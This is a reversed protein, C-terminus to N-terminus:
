GMATQTKVVGYGVTHWLDGCIVIKRQTDGIMEELISNSIEKCPNYFFIIRIGGYTGMVHAGREGM